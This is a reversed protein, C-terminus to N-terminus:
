SGLVMKSSNAWASVMHIAKENKDHSACLTKGDISITENKTLEHVAKIWAMFCSEFEVRDIMACIRQLTDHSPIGNELKM